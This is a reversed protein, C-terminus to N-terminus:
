SSKAISKAMLKLQSDGPFYEFGAEILSTTDVILDAYLQEYLTTKGLGNLIIKMIPTPVTLLNLRRGLAKRIKIVLERTSRPEPEALHFIRGAVTSAPADALFALARVVNELSVMSRRNNACGFPLPMISDCLRVLANLNARAGPGYVLVPRAIVIEIGDMQVLVEEAKAKASGYEDRPALAMDPVLPSPHGTITHITSVFIFRRVGHSRAKHALEVALRHNVADFAEATPRESGTRHALAACHIVTKVNTFDPNALEARSLGVVEKGKATLYSCLASGIFGGAGTVAVIM